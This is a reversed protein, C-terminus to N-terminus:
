FIYAAGTQNNHNFAGVLATGASDYLAGDSALLEATQQALRIRTRTHRTM